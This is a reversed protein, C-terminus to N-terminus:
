PNRKCPALGTEIEIGICSAYFRPLYKLVEVTQPKLVVWRQVSEENAGVTYQFNYL